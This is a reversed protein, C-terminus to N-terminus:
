WKGAETGDGEEPTSLKVPLPSAAHKVHSATFAIPKIKLNLPHDLFGHGYLAFNYDQRHILQDPDLKVLRALKQADEPVVRGVYKTAMSLVAQETSSPFQSLRQHSLTLCVRAERARDIIEEIYENLYVDSEDIYVFAYRKNQRQKVASALLAIVFRGIFPAALEDFSSTDLLLVRGDDIVERLDLTTERSFIARVTDDHLLKDFRWALQSDTDRYRAPPHAILYQLETINKAQKACEMIFAQQKATLGAELSEFVYLLLSSSLRLLNLGVGSWDFIATMRDCPIQSLAPVLDGKPSMVTVSADTQMDHHVLKKILESKGTGSVGTILTHQPRKEKPTEYSVRFKLLDRFPHPIYPQVNPEKLERLQDQAERLKTREWAVNEGKDRHEIQYHYTSIQDKLYARQSVYYDHHWNQALSFLFPDDDQIGALAKLTTTFPGRTPEYIPPLRSFIYVLGKAFLLPDNGRLGPFNGEIESQAMVALVPILSDPLRRGRSKQDEILPDIFDSPKV